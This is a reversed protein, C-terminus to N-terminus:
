FLTVVSIFYLTWWSRGHLVSNMWILKNELFWLCYSTIKTSVFERPHVSNRIPAWPRYFKKWLRKSTTVNCFYRITSYWLWIASILASHPLFVIELLWLFAMSFQLKWHIPFNLFILSFVTFIELIHFWSITLSTHNISVFNLIEYIFDRVCCM